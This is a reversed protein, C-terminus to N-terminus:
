AISGSIQLLFKWEKFLSGPASPWESLPFSRAIKLHAGKNCLDEFEGPPMSNIGRYNAPEFHHIWPDPHVGLYHQQLQGYSSCINQQLDKKYKGSLHLTSSFFNGWWFMTRIFFLDNASSLRPYDLILYPLGLYNEGRSIKPSIDFPESETIRENKIWELQQQQVNELLLKCKELVRNKTLIVAANQMLESEAVSFQIKPGEM